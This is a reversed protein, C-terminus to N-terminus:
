KKRRDFKGVAVVPLEVAIVVHRKKAPDQKLCSITGSVHEKAATLARKAQVKDDPDFDGHVTTLTLAGYHEGRIFGYCKRM